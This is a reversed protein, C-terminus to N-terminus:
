RWASRWDPWGLMQAVENASLLPEGEPGCAKAVPEPQPEQEARDLVAIAKAFTRRVADPRQPGAIRGLSELEARVADYLALPIHESRFTRVPQGAQVAKLAVQRWRRLDDRALQYAASRQQRDAPSMTKQATRRALVESVIRQWDGDYRIARDDVVALTRPKARFEIGDDPDIGHELLWARMRARLAAGDPGSLGGCSLYVTLGAQRLAQIAEIAGPQAEGLEPSREADTLCQHWDIDVAEYTGASKQLVAQVWGGCCAAKGVGFIDGFSPAAPYDAAAPAEPQDGGDAGADATSGAGMTDDGEDARSGETARSPKRGPVAPGERSSSAQSEDGPEGPQDGAQDASQAQAAIQSLLVPGAGTMIFPPVGLPKLGQRERLEDLQYVGIRSYIEDIQAERLRDEAEGYRWEFTLEPLGMYDCLVRNIIGRVYRTLPRIADRYTVNEQGESSARNVDDTFGLEAPTVHLAACTVKLLWVDFQPDGSFQAFEYIPVTGRGGAATFILRSRRSLDGSLWADFFEQHQQIQEPTWTDPVGLLARPINSDSFHALDQLRKRIATNVVFLIQEIESYGYPTHTRVNQPLYLLQDASWMGRPLGWLIQQYAPAPPDPIRGRYDVLPKITAGDVLELAYLGGARNRRPYITSADIVLRDELLMMLWAQWDHQRDPKEFFRKAAAIEKQYRNTKQGSPDRPVIDWDLGALQEKRKQIAIRAIDYNAAFFRLQAFSTEETGRPVYQLNIGVQIQRQRPEPEAQVPAIPEGPSFWNLVGLYVDKFRQIVDSLDRIAVPKASQNQPDPM